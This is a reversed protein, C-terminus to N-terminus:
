TGVRKIVLDYLRKIYYFPLYLSNNFAYKDQMWSSRPFVARIMGLISDYLMANWILFSIKGFKFEDPNFLGINKIWHSLIYLKIPKPKIKKLVENPIPTNFFITPILLSFYVPVKVKHSFVDRLFLDWDINQGNVIRDVDLHLRFGPARVYSHKATHLCVQLLNDEPSLIRLKSGDTSISRDVLRDGDPEQDPRLFRGEVPRWQLEFWLQQGNPLITKYESGGTRYGIKEDAIHYKNPSAIEYGNKILIEHAHIFDSRRVLTDVDGMPVLGPYPYIAKAIGSNKLPVLPIGNKSFIDAVRDLEKLYSAIRKNTSNYSELWHNPISGEGYHEILRYGIISDILNHKAFDYVEDDNLQEYLTFGDEKPKFSIMSCAFQEILSFNSFYNKIILM